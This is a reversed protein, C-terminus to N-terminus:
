GPEWLQLIWSSPPCLSPVCLRVPQGDAEARRGSIGPDATIHYWVLAKGLLPPTYCASLCLSGFLSLFHPVSVSLSFSLTYFGVFWLSFYVSYFPPSFFFVHFHEPFFPLLLFLPVPSTLCSLLSFLATIDRHATVAKESMVLSPALVPQGPVTTSGSLARRPSLEQEWCVRGTVGPIQATYRPQYLLM